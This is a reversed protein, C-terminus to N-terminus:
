TSASCREGTLQHLIRVAVSWRYRRRCKSLKYQRILHHFSLEQTRHTISSNLCSPRLSGKKAIMQFTQRFLYQQSNFKEFMMHWNQIMGLLKLLVRDNLKKTTALKILVSQVESSGVYVYSPPCNKVVSDLLELSLLLTNTDKSQLRKVLPLLVAKVKTPNANVVKRLLGQIAASSRM